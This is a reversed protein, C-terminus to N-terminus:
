RVEDLRSKGHFRNEGEAINMVQPSKLEGYVGIPGLVDIKSKRM